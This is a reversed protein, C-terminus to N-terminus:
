GRYYKAECFLIIAPAIDLVSFTQQLPKMTFTGDRYGGAEYNNTAIMLRTM